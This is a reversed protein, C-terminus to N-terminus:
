HHRPQELDEQISNVMKPKDPNIRMAQAYGCYKSERVYNPHLLLERVLPGPIRQAYTFIPYKVTYLCARWAQVAPM